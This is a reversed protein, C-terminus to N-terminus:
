QASYKKKNIELSETIFFQKWGSKLAVSIHKNIQERNKCSFLTQYIFPQLIWPYIIYGYLM